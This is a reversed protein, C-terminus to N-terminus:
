LLARRKKLLRFIADIESMSLIILYLSVGPTILAVIDTSSLSFLVIPFVWAVLTTWPSRLVLLMALVIMVVNRSLTGVGIEARTQGFCNCPFQNGKAINIIMPITFIVLLGVVVLAIVKPLVGAILFLALLLELPSLLRAVARIM